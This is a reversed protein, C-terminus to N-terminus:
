PRRRSVYANASGKYIPPLSSKLNNLDSLLCLYSAYSSCKIYLYLTWESKKEIICLKTSTPYLIIKLWKCVELSTTSPIALDPHADFHLFLLDKTPLLKKRWCARLFPIVDCHDESKHRDHLPTSSLLTFLWKFSM